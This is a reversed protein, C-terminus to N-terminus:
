RRASCVLRACADVVVEVQGVGMLLWPNGLKSFNRDPFSRRDLVIEQFDQFHKVMSAAVLTLGTLIAKGTRAREAGGVAQLPRGCRGRRGTSQLPGADHLGPARCQRAASRVQVSLSLRALRSLDSIGAHTRTTAATFHLAWGAM